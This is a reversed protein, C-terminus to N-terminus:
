APVAADLNLLWEVMVARDIFDLKMWIAAAAQQAPTRRFSTRPATLHEACHWLCEMQIDPEKRKCACADYMVLAVAREAAEEKEDEDLGAWAECALDNTGRIEDFAMDSSSVLLELTQPYSSAEGFVQQIIIKALQCVDM